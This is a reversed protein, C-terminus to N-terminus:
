HIMFSLLTMVLIPMWFVFLVIKSIEFASEAKRLIRSQTYKNTILM